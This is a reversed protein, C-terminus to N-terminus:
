KPPPNNQLYPLGGIITTKEAWISPDFGAPLGSQLQKTTQGTIGPDNSPYGAGQSLNTIGSTDTDWYCDALSGSSSNDYGVFGGVFSNAGGTPAGTSYSAAVSVDPSNLDILGILGGVYSPTRSSGTMQAIKGTAYSNAVSSKYGVVGVLGGADCPLICSLNGTAYSTAISAEGISGVLGGIIAITQATISGTVRSNTIAGTYSYYAGDSGVLGGVVPNGEHPGTFTISVASSSRDIPGDNGGIMGGIACPCPEGGVPITVTMTGTVSDEFLSGTNSPALGGVYTESQSATTIKLKKLRLHSVSAPASISYFMGQADITLHSIDNGLGDFNGAFTTSVPPSSYTGDASADYDAALAYAGSPNNAIAAALSKISGVLTYATGNISLASSLKAFTIRGVTDISHGNKGISFFGESGGDNTVISMGGAGDDSILRDVFISHYADLTLVSTSKWSLAAEIHLDGQEDGGTGNDTTVETNGNALANELDTVNLVANDGTATFVGNNFSINYTAAASITLGYHNTSASAATAALVVSAAFVVLRAFDLM